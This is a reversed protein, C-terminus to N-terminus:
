KELLFWTIDDLPYLPDKHYIFGYDILKLKPYLLMIESCFDRKFLKNSNGRYNIERVDRSYYEAILIYKKSLEYMKKYFDNLKEPNIHILVGKSFVLDFQSNNKLDFISSNYLNNCINESNLLDYAYKNIEIGNLSINNDISKIAKLNLGRNCGIEFINNISINKLIKKFLNINNKILQENNRDTYETGFENKWFIEQETLKRISM